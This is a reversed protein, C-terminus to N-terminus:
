NLNSLDPQDGFTFKQPNASAMGTVRGVAKEFCQLIVPLPNSGGHQWSLESVSHYNQMSGQERAQLFCGEM